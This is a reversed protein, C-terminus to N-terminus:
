HAAVITMGADTPSPVVTAAPELQLRAIIMQQISTAGGLWSIFWGPAKSLAYSLAEALVANGVSVSLTKGKEAGAVANIGYMIAKDLLQDAHAALLTAAWAKPIKRFIWAIVALIVPGIWAAIATLWDGIPLVVTTAPPVTVTQAFAMGLPFAVALLTMAMILFFIRLNFAPNM